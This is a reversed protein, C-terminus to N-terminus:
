LVLLGVLFSASNMALSLGLAESWHTKPLLAYLIGTEVGVVIAEGVAVFTWYDGEHHLYAWWLLPHTLCSCLATTPLLRQWRVRSLIQLSVSIEVSLTIVFAGAWAQWFLVEM